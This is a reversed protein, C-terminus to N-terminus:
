GRSERWTVISRHIISCKGLKQLSPWPPPLDRTVTVVAEDGERIGVTGVSSPSAWASRPGARARGSDRAAQSVVESTARGEM